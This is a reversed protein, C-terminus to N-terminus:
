LPKYSSGELRFLKPKKSDVAGRADFHIPGSAGDYIELELLAKQVVQAEETGTKKVAAAYVQVADYATDASIGPKEHYRAQYASVFSPKAEPYLSFIVGDLAGNATKITGESILIAMRRGKYGLSRLDKAATSMQSGINSFFVLDPNAHMIRIAETRVDTATQLPELKVSVSGGLKQFEEEFIDGQTKDWAQDSSFIAVSKLGQSIAYQALRRTALEDHPWVNFINAGSENFEKVGVTPSMMIIQKNKAVLPALALAAPTWCPGIIFRIQPDLVLQQYASVASSPLEERSDQISLKLPQGLLGGKANLEDIALQAGRQANRGWEACRGSLCLLGGIRMAAEEASVLTAAPACFLAIIFGVLGIAKAFYSKEM